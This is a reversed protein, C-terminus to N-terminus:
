QVNEVSKILAINPEKTMSLTCFCPMWCKDIMEDLKRSGHATEKGLPSTDNKDEPLYM